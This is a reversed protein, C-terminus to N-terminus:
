RLSHIIDLTKEPGTTVVTEIGAQSPSYDNGGPFVADGIFLADEKSITYENLYTM